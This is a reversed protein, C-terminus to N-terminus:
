LRYFFLETPYCPKRWECGYRGFGIRYGPRIRNVTAIVNRNNQIKDATHETAIALMPQLTRITNEAGQLAQTEAGEIDMKIFDVKSIGNEALLQDLPAVRVWEGVKGEEVSGHKVVRNAVSSLGELWLRDQQSWVGVQLIRVRGADIERAFTRKMSEVKRSSPEIAVVFGAGRDLAWRTFSGLHAGCDVVTDGAKVTRGKYTYVDFQMVQTMDRFSLLSEDMPMWFRGSPGQWHVFAGETELIRCQATFEDFPLVRPLDGFWVWHERLDSNLNARLLSSATVAWEFGPTALRFQGARLFFVLFLAGLVALTGVFFKMFRRVLM